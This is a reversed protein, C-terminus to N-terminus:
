TEVESDSGDDHYQCPRERGCVGGGDLEATCLEPDDGTVVKMRDGWKRREHATPEFTDGKRIVEGSGHRVRPTESIWQYTM